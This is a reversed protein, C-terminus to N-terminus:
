QLIVYFHVTRDHMRSPHSSKITAVSNTASIFFTKGRPLFKFLVSFIHTWFNQKLAFKHGEANALKTDFTQFEACVLKNAMEGM